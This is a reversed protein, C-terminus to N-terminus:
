QCAVPSAIRGALRFLYVRKVQDLISMVDMRDKKCEKSGDDM